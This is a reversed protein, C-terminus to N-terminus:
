WKTMSTGCKPCQVDSCPIGIKGMTKVGCKPCVCYRPGGRESDWSVGRTADPGGPRKKGWSGDPVNWEQERVEAESKEETM